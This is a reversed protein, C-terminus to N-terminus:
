ELTLEYKNIFKLPKLYSAVYSEAKAKILPMGYKRILERDSDTKCLNVIRNYLNILDQNSAVSNHRLFPIKARVAKTGVSNWDKNRVINHLNNTMLLAIPVLYKDTDFSTLTRLGLSVTAQEKSKLLNNIMDFQDDDMEIANGQSNIYSDLQKESILRDGYNKYIEFVDEKCAIKGTSFLKGKVPELTKGDKEMLYKIFKPFDDTDKFGQGKAEEEFMKEVDIYHRYYSYRGEGQLLYLVNNEDKYLTIDMNDISYTSNPMVIYDAKEKLITRKNDTFNRLRYRPYSSDKSFYIADDKNININEDEKLNKVIRNALELTETHSEPIFYVDGQTYRFASGSPLDYTGRYLASNYLSLKKQNIKPVFRTKLNQSQYQKKTYKERAADSSLAVTMIENMRIM